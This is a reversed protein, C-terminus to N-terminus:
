KRPPNAWEHGDGVGRLWYDFWRINREYAALRHAPQWKAHHEGSFVFLSVPRGAQKLAMYSAVAGRFEDDSQQILLPTSVSRANEVLSISSWFPARYDVLQPWGLEHFARAASPGILADQFPEWCCGTASAAKFMSGNVIAFQVTSSGDSLGTIGVNQGDVVGRAILDKVQVAISSLVSRRDALIRRGDQLAQSSPALYKPDPRQVSLVAYGRNAFVQIPFEDGVGGRLFGRSTYQVVILPYSRGKVYGTPYVLDGFSQVGFENRWLLREVQGLLLRHFNPNPDFILKTRGSDPDLLVIHRPSTSQERACLLGENIRSCDLLLDTTTYILRPEGNGPRWEYIATESEGWGDRRIFRVNLGDRTWWLTTAGACRESSCVQRRGSRETAIITETSTDGNAGSTALSAIRGDSSTAQKGDPVSDAEAEFRGRESASAASVAKTSVDLSRIVRDESQGPDPAGALLPVFREDYRYGGRSEGEPPREPVVGSPQTSYLIRRDHGALLFKDVGRAEGTLRESEGGSAAARWIETQGDTRKLFYIWKGDGSWRLQAPASYGTRVEAGGVGSVSQFMFDGGSDVQIPPTPLAVSIVLISFRYTNTTPDASRLQVAFKTRDPSVSLIDGSASPYVPGIDVLRVLDAATLSVKSEGPTSGTVTTKGSNGASGLLACAVVLAVGSGVNFGRM